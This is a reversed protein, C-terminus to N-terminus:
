KSKDSRIPLSIHAPYPDAYLSRQPTLFFELCQSKSAHNSYISAYVLMIKFINVTKGFMKKVIGKELWIWFGTLLKTAVEQSWTRRAPSCIYARSSGSRWHCGLLFWSPSGRSIRCNSRAITKQYKHAVPGIRMSAKRPRRNTPSKDSTEIEPRKAIRSFASCRTEAPLPHWLFSGLTRQPPTTSASSSPQIFPSYSFRKKTQWLIRLKGHMWNKGSAIRPNLHLPAVKTHYRLKPSTTKWSGCM